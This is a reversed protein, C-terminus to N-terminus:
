NHHIVFSEPAPFKQAVECALSSLLTRAAFSRKPIDLQFCSQNFIHQSIEDSPLSPFGDM